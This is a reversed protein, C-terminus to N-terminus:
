CRAQITRSANLNGLGDAVPRHDRMDATLRREAVAANLVQAQQTIGLMCRDSLHTSKWEGRRRCRRGRLLAGTSRRCTDDCALPVGRGRGLQPDRGTRSTAPAAATQGAPAPGSHSLHTMCLQVTHVALPAAASQQPSQRRRVNWPKGWRRGWGTHRAEKRESRGRRAHRGEMAPAQARERDPGCRELPAAACRRPRSCCTADEPVM